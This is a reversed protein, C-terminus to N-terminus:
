RISVDKDAMTVSISAVISVSSQNCQVTRKGIKTLDYPSGFKPDLSKCSCKFNQQTLSNM